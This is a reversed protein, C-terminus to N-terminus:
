YPEIYRIVNKYTPLGDYNPNQLRLSVNRGVVQLANVKSPVSTRNGDKVLNYSYQKQVPTFVIDIGFVDKNLEVTPHKKRDEEKAYNNTVKDIKIGNATNTYYMHLIQAYSVGKPDYFTFKGGTERGLYIYDIDNFILHHNYLPSNFVGRNRYLYKHSYTTIYIVRDSNSDILLYLVEHVTSKGMDRDTFEPHKLKDKSASKDRYMSFQYLTYTSLDITRTPVYAAKCGELCICLIVLGILRKM